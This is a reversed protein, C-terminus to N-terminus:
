LQEHVLPPSRHNVYLLFGEPVNHLALGVAVHVASENLESSKLVSGNLLGTGEDPDAARGARRACQIMIRHTVEHLGAALVIGAIFTAVTAGEHHDTVCCWGANAEPYLETVVLLLMFGTAAGFWVVLFTSQRTLISSFIVQVLRHPVFYWM